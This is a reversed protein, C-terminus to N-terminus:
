EHIAQLIKERELLLIILAEGQLILGDEVTLTNRHGHYSHLACPVDNLDDSWGTIIMEALSSFLWDDQILAQFETEQWTHHACLQHHHRSTDRSDLAMVAAKFIKVM